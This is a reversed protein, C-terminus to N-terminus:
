RELYTPIENRQEPNVLLSPLSALKLVVLGEEHSELLVVRGSYVQQPVADQETNCNIVSVNARLM